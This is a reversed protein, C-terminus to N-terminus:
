REISRTACCWSWNGQVINDIYSWLDILVLRQNQFKLVVVLLAFWFWIDAFCSVIINLHRTEQLGWCCNNPLAMENYTSIFVHHESAAKWPVPKRTFEFCVGGTEFVFQPSSQICSTNTNTNSDTGADGHIIKALLSIMIEHNKSHYHSNGIFANKLQKWLLKQRTRAHQCGKVSVAIKSCKTQTIEESFKCSVFIAQGGTRFTCLEPYAVYPTNQSTRCAYQSFENLTGATTNDEACCSWRNRHTTTKGHAQTKLVINFLTTRHPWRRAALVEDHEDVIQVHRLDVLVARLLRNRQELEQHTRSAFSRSGHINQEQPQEKASKREQKRRTWFCQWTPTLRLLAEKVRSLLVRSFAGCVTCWM